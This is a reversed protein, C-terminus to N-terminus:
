YKKFAFSVGYGLENFSHAIFRGSQVVESQWVNNLYLHDPNQTDDFVLIGGVKLRPIVNRLDITAGRATHDGDVTILDFYDQPHTRFYEAVTVRSNGSIFEAQGRYGVKRLEGAVFDPGPNEIGVYNPIWMDFGVIKVDPRQSAVIAMSRGRRVGIELYSEIKVGGAIAFLVTNIDAYKWGQGFREIGAKYFDVNFLIFKDASLRSIIDSVASITKVSCCDDIFTSPGAVLPAHEFWNSNKELFAVEQQYPVGNRHSKRVERRIRNKLRQLM